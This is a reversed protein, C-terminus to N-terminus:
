IEFVVRFQAAMNLPLIRLERITGECIRIVPNLDEFNQFIEVDLNKQFNPLFDYFFTMDRFSCPNSCDYKSAFNAVSSLVRVFDLLLISVKLM